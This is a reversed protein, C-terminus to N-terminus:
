RSWIECTREKTYKYAHIRHNPQDVNKTYKMNSASNDSM